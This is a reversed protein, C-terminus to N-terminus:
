DSPQLDSERRDILALLSGLGDRLQEIQVHGSAVEAQLDSVLADYTGRLEAVEEDRESLKSNLEDNTSAIAQLREEVRANKESLADRQEVMARYTGKSVCSLAGLLLPVAIVAHLWTAGRPSSRRTTRTRIPM